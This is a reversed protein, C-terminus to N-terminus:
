SRGKMLREQRQAPAYDVENNVRSPSTHHKNAKIKLIRNQKEYEILLKLASYICAVNIVPLVLKPQLDSRTQSFHKM